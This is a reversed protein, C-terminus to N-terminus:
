PVCGVASRGLPALLFPGFLARDNCRSAFPRLIHTIEPILFLSRQRADADTDRAPESLCLLPQM